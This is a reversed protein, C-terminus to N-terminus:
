RLSSALIWCRLCVSFLKDILESTLDEGKLTVRDLAILQKLSGDDSNPGGASDGRDRAMLQKLTNVKIGSSVLEEVSPGGMSSSPSSGQMARARGGRM